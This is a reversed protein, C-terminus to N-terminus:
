DLDVTFHFNFYIPARLVLYWIIIGNRRKYMEKEYKKAHGIIEELSYKQESTYCRTAGGALGAAIALYGCNKGSCVVFHLTNGSGNATNRLIDIIRVTQNLSCDAGVSFQTEPIDNNLSCPIISIPINLGPFQSKQNHLMSACEKAELNGM